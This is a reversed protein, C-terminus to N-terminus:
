ALCSFAELAVSGLRELRAVRENRIWLLYYGGGIAFVFDFDVGFRTVVRLTDVLAAV